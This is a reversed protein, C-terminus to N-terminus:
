GILWKIPLAIDKSTADGQAILIRELPNLALLRAKSGAEEYSGGQASVGFIEFDIEDKQSELYQDLLAVNRTLFDKPNQPNYARIEEVMDWASIVVAVRLKETGDRLTLLMQLLDVLKAGLSVNSPKWKVELEEIEKENEIDVHPIPDNRYNRGAHCFLMVFNTARALEVYDSSCNRRECQRDYIEGSLDPINLTVNVNSTSDRLHLTNPFPDQGKTREVTCCQLWCEILSELLHREEPYGSFSFVGKYNPNEVVAALAGLYTSKGSKPLGLFLLGTQSSLNDTIIM